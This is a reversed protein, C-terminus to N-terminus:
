QTKKTKKEQSNKSWDDVKLKKRIIYVIELKENIKRIVGGGWKERVFLKFADVTGVNWNKIM